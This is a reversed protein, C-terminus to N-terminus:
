TQSYNTLVILYDLVCAILLDGARNRNSPDFRKKERKKKLYALLPQDCMENKNNLAREPITFITFIVEDLYNSLRGPKPRM